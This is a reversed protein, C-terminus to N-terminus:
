HASSSDLWLSSDDLHAILDLNRITEFELRAQANTDSGSGVLAATVLAVCAVGPAFVRLWFRLPTLWAPAAPEADIARLVRRAFFPAPKVPRAGGLVRWLAATEPDRPDFPDDPNSPAM